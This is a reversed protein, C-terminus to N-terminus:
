SCWCCRLVEHALSDYTRTGTCVTQTYGLSYEVTDGECACEGVCVCVGREVRM